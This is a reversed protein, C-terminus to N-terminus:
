FLNISSASESYGDGIYCTSVYTQTMTGEYYTKGTALSSKKRVSSADFTAGEPQWMNSTVPWSARGYTDRGHLESPPSINAGGVNISNSSGTLNASNNLLNQLTQRESAKITKTTTVRTTPVQLQPVGAMAVECDTIRDKPAIEESYEPYDIANPNTDDTSYWGSTKVQGGMSGAELWRLEGRQLKQVVSIYTRAEAEECGCEHAVWIYLPLDIVDWSVQIQYGNSSESINDEEKEGGWNEGTTPDNEEEIEINPTFTAECMVRPAGANPTVSVSVEDKEYGYSTVCSTCFAKIASATNTVWRRIHYSYVSGGFTWWETEGDGDYKDNLEAEGYNLTVVTLPGRDERDIGSLAKGNYTHEVGKVFDNVKETLVVWRQEYKEKTNGESVNKFYRTDINYPLEHEPKKYLINNM